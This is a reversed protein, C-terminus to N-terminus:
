EAYRVTVVSGETDILITQTPVKAINEWFEVSWISDDENFDTKIYDYNVKCKSLAINEAESQSITGIDPAPSSSIAINLMEGILNTDINLDAAVKYYYGDHSIQYGNEETIAIDAIQKDEAEFWTLMYVYDDKGDTASTREFRLSNIDKTISQIFEKDAINVEEGTHGVKINIYNAEGIDFTLCNDGCGALGLVFILSLFIALIKKM